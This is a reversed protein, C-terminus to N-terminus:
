PTGAPVPDRTLGSASYHLTWAARPGLIPTPSDESGKQPIRSVVILKHRVSVCLPSSFTSIPQLSLTYSHPSLCHCPTVLLGIDGQLSRGMLSGTVQSRPGQHGWLEGMSVWAKLAGGPARGERSHALMKGTDAKRCGYVEGFGGRGIIRHVSFDNM